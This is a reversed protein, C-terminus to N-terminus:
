LQGSTADSQDLLAQYDPNDYRSLLFEPAYDPLADGIIHAALLEAAAQSAMQGFGSLAGIIFAGEVDLPGILPRNERTKCYYGGDIVPRATRGLYNCLGPIMHTLGRLVVEAYVPDFQPPWVPKVPDVDYTWLMLLVPSDAAGEPRFHVGSPLERLLWRTDASAALEEREDPSWPLTVPDSWIMMPVDRPVVGLRDRFAIKAHLENLVPVEIGLIAAVDRIYPGAAIVFTDTSVQNDGDASQFRVARVRGGRTTAGTVRANLLRAGHAIAQELMYMGMQQASFWGCRRAHLAAVVKETVFPYHAMIVETDLILDAGSPEGEFGNAPSRRYVQPSSGGDHVRLPGAGLQSIEAASDRLTDARAVDGTLFLYGRRSLNFINDTELAMAELLDISHNMFSVMADGPGPWWNRYCETSKDSTLTLPPREDIILINKVGRKVSLHFAASIGAIGAGCIVVDATAKTVSGM